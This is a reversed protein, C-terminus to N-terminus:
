SPVMVCFDLVKVSSAFTSTSLCGIRLVLHRKLHAELTGALYCTMGIFSESAYWSAHAPELESIRLSARTSSWNRLNNGHSIPISLLDTNRNMMLPM